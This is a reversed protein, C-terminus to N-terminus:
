ANTEPEVAGEDKLEVAGETVELSESGEANGQAVAEPASAAPESIPQSAVPEAPAPLAAAAPSLIEVSGREPFLEEKLNPLFPSLFTWTIDWLSGSPGAGEGDQKPQFMGQTSMVLLMNKLSEVVAERQSRFPLTM